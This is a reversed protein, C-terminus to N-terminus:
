IPLRENMMRVVSAAYIGATETRLRSHGLSIPEWGAHVATQIEDPTFDGEPGILVTVMGQPPTCQSFETRSGAACHAIYGSPSQSIFDRFSVADHLVPMFPQLSQKVAAKMVKLFRDHNVVRRESRGCIVPTVTELGLEVAKELFWETRDNMKAPAIVAHLRYARPKYSKTERISFECCGPSVSILVAEAVLGMGDLLVIPDGEKLRLVRAAHASEGADLESRGQSIDPCFFTHM